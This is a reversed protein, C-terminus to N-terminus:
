RARRACPAPRAGDRGALEDRRVAEGREQRPRHLVRRLHELRRRTRVDARALHDLHQLDDRRRARRGAGRGRRAGCTGSTSSTLPSASSGPRTTASTLASGSSDARIAVRSPRNSSSASFSVGTRARRRAATRGPCPRRARACRRRRPSAAGRRRGARRPARRARSPARLVVQQADDGRGVRVVHEVRHGVAEGALQGLLAARQGATLALADGQRPRQEDVRLDEHEHLRGARDVGVGLRPDGRPQGVDPAAAGRQDDGGARQHEVVHVLDREHLVADHACAAAVVVQERVAGAVVLDRPSGRPPRAAAPRPTRRSRLM